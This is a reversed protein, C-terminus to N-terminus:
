VLVVHLCGAQVSDPKVVQLAFSVPPGVWADLQMTTDKLEDYFYELDLLDDDSM